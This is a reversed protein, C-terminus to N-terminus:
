TTNLVEIICLRYVMNRTFMGFSHLRKRERLLQEEKSFAAQNNNCELVCKVKMEQGVDAPLPLM